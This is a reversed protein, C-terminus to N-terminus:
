STFQCNTVLFPENVGIQEKDFRENDGLKVTYHCYLTEKEAQYCYLLSLLLIAIYKFYHLMFM